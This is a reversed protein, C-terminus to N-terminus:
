EDNEKKRNVEKNHIYVEIVFALSCTPVWPLLNSIQKTFQREISTARSGGKMKLWATTALSTAGQLFTAIPWLFGSLDLLASLVDIAFIFLLGIVIESIRFASM